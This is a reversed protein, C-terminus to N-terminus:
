LFMRVAERAHRLQKALLCVELMRLGCSPDYPRL